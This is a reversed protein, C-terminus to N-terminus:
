DPGTAAMRSPDAVLVFTFPITSLPYMAVLRGDPLEVVGAESGAIAARAAEHTFSAFTQAESGIQGDPEALETARGPVVRVIV